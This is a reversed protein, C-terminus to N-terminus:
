GLYPGGVDRVFTPRPDDALPPRPRSETTESLPDLPRGGPIAVRAVSWEDGGGRVFWRHTARDPHEANLRLARQEAEARTM